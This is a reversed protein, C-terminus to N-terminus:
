LQRLGPLSKRRHAGQPQGAQGSHEAFLVRVWRWLMPPTMPLPKTCAEQAMLWCSASRQLRSVSLAATCTGKHSAIICPMGEIVEGQHIPAPQWLLVKLQWVPAIGKLARSGDLQVVPAARCRLPLPPCGAGEGGKSCRRHRTSQRTHRLLLTARRISGRSDLSSASVVSSDTPPKHSLWRAPPM